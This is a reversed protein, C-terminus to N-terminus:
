YFEGAVEELSKPTEAKFGTRKRSFEAPINPFRRLVAVIRDTDVQTLALAQIEAVVRETEPKNTIHTEITTNCNDWDNGTAVFPDFDKGYLPIVNSREASHMQRPEVDLMDSSIVIEKVKIGASALIDVVQDDASKTKIKRCVPYNFCYRSKIPNHSNDVFVNVTIDRSRLEVDGCDNCKARVLAM